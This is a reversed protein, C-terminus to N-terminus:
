SFADFMVTENVSMLESFQVDTVEAYGDLQARVNTYRNSFFSKIGYAFDPGNGYDNFLNTEFATNSYQKRTDAYVDDRILDALQNIRPDMSNGHFDARLMKAMIRLYQKQYVDVNWLREMLPRYEQPPPLWMVPLNQLNYNQPLGFRFRGFTENLDWHIHTFKGTDNRQYIYYNHASGSYSDLHAFLLNLAMSHLGSEVDFLPELAAPMDALSPNNLADIFAILGSYDNAAENTKLQYREYYPEPETGLWELSSGFDGQPGDADDSAQAKFLNGDEGEGFRSQVFTKDVQEVAIYLGWYEDNVYVRTHVARIQSLWQSAYDLFMKERLFSPDKFGNNLALASLGLFQADPNDEDYEDFDIKFSKKDTPIGFSSNGKFRIGIQALTVDGWTFSAPFYPDTPDNAHANYLTNYWNPDDITVRVEQVVTDDFFPDSDDAFVSSGIDLALVCVLLSKMVTEKEKVM